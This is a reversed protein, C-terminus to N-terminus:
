TKWDFSASTSLSISANILASFYRFDRRINGDDLSAEIFRILQCHATGIPGTTMRSSQAVYGAEPCAGDNVV